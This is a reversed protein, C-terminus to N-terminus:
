PQGGDAITPFRHWICHSGGVPVIVIIAFGSEKQLVILSGDVAKRLLCDTGAAYMGIGSAGGHSESISIDLFGKVGYYPQGLKSSDWDAFIGRGGTARNWTYKSFRHKEVSQWQKFVEIEIVDPEPEVVTVTDAGACASHDGFLLRSLSAQGVNKGKDTFAEGKDAYRGAIRPVSMYKEDGPAFAPIQSPPKPIAACGCVLLIQAQAFLWLCFALRCATFRSNNSQAFM